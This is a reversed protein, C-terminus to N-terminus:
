KCHEQETTALINGAATMDEALDNVQKNLGELTAAFGEVNDAESSAIAMQQFVDIMALYSELASAVDDDPAADLVSQFQAGVKAVNTQADTGWKNLATFDGDRASNLAEENPVLLDIQQTMESLDRSTDCFPAYPDGDGSCASLTIAGLAVIAGALIARWTRTTRPQRSSAAIHSSTM